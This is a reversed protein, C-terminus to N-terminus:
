KRYGTRPKSSQRHGLHFWTYFNNEKQVSDILSAEGTNCKWSKEILKEWFNIWLVDISFKRTHHSKRQLLVREEEEAICLINLNVPTTKWKRLFANTDNRFTMMLRWIKNKKTLRLSLCRNQSKIVKIEEKDYAEYYYMPTTLIM